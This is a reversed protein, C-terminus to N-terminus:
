PNMREPPAASHDSHQQPSDEPIRSRYLDIKFNIAALHGEIDRLQAEVRERHQELLELREAENGEGSRAMEAYKHIQRISMGTSRLRTIFQVWYIDVDRYRRHSSAARRVRDRMLGAREYYRLTHVSVGTLAAADAISYDGPDTEIATVANM